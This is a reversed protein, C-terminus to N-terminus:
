VIDIIYTEEDIILEDPINEGKPSLVKVQVVNVRQGDLKGDIVRSHGFRINKIGNQNIYVRNDAYYDGRIFNPGCGDRLNRIHELLLGYNEWYISEVIMQRLANLRNINATIENVNMEKEKQNM